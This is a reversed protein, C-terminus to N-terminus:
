EVDEHTAERAKHKWQFAFLLSKFPALLALCLGIAAAMTLSLALWPPLDFGFQLIILLPAVLAG